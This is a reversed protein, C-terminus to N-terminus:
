NRWEILIIESFATRWNFIFATLLDSQICRVLINKCFNLQILLRIDDFQHLLMECYNRDIFGFFNCTIHQKLLTGWELILVVSFQLDETNSQKFVIGGYVTLKKFYGHPKIKSILFYLFYFETIPGNPSQEGFLINLRFGQKNTPKPVLQGRRMCGNCCDWTESLQFHYSSIENLYCM